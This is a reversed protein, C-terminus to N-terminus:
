KKETEVKEVEVWSAGYLCWGTHDSIEDVLFENLYEDLYDRETDFHVENYIERFEDQDELDIELITGSYNSELEIKEDVDLDELCDFDIDIDIIKILAKYNQQGYPDLFDLNTTNPPLEVYETKSSANVTMFTTPYPTYDESLM